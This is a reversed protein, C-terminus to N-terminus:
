DGLTFQKGPGHSILLLQGLVDRGVFVEIGSPQDAGSDLVGRLLVPRPVPLTAAVLDSTDQGNLGVMVPLELGESTWSLTFHPM